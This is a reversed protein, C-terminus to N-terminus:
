LRRWRAFPLYMPDGLNGGSRYGARCHLAFDIQYIVETRRFLDGNEVNLECQAVRRAALMPTPPFRRLVTRILRAIEQTQAFQLPDVALPAVDLVANPDSRSM